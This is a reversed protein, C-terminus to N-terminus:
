IAPRSRVTTSRRLDFIGHVDRWSGSDRRDLLVESDGAVPRLGALRRGTREMVILHAEGAGSIDYILWRRV